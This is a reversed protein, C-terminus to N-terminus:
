VFVGSFITSFQRRFNDGSFTNRIKAPWVVGGFIAKMKPWNTDAALYRQFYSIVVSFPGIEQLTTSRQTTRTTHWLTVTDCKIWKFLCFHNVEFTRSCLLSKNFQQQGSAVCFSKSPHLNDHLRVQKESPWPPIHCSEYFTNSPCLLIGLIWRRPISSMGRILLDTNRTYDHFVLILCSPITQNRCIQM